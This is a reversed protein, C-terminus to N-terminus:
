FIIESVPQSLDGIEHVQLGINSLSYILTNASDEIVVSRLPNVSYCVTTFVCGLAPSLKASTIAAQPLLDEHDIRGLESFGDADSVKLAIFGSFNQDISSYNNIVFPVVLLNSQDVYNFALPEYSSSSWAYTVDGNGDKPVYSHLLVPDALNSVDFLQFNVGPLLGDDDGNRGVTVLRDTGVPHIYESFGPIKIEGVIQPSEPITLDFTFLPDIQRFTVVYATNEVFRASRITEDLAYTPTSGVIKLEGSGDLALVHMHNVANANQINEDNIWETTVVRLHGNFESLSMRNNVGGPVVGAGEYVLSDGGFSIQHIATEHVQEPDWWWDSSMQYLYISSDSVYAQGSLSIVASLGETLQGDMSLRYVSSLGGNVSLEPMYVDECAAMYEQSVEGNTWENAFPLHESVDVQSVLDAIIQRAEREHQAALDFDQANTAATYSVLSQYFEENARLASWSLGPLTVFDKALVLLEGAVLRAEFSSGSMRIERLESPSAPDTIDFFKIVTVVPGALSTSFLTLSGDVPVETLRYFIVALRNTQEDLVIEKISLLDGFDLETLVTLQNAPYGNAIALINDRAIYFVGNTSAQIIDAEDVGVEQNNTQSVVIDLSSPSPDSTIAAVSAVGVNSFYNNAITNALYTGLQTCSMGEKLSAKESGVSGVPPRNNNTEEIEPASGGSGGCGSLLLLALVLTTLSLLNKM